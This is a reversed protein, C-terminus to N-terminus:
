DELGLWIIRDALRDHHSAKLGSRLARLEDLAATYNGDSYFRGKWREDILLGAYGWKTREGKKRNSIQAQTCDCEEDGCSWVSAVFQAEGKSLDEAAEDVWHKKEAM